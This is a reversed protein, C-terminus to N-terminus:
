EKKMQEVAAVIIIIILKDKKAVGAILTLSLSILFFLFINFQV